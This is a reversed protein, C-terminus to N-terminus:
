NCVNQSDYFLCVLNDKTPSTTLCASLGHLLLCLKKGKSYTAGKDGYIHRHRKQEETRELGIAFVQTIKEKM